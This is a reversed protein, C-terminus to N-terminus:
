DVSVLHHCDSRASRKEYEPQLLHQLCRHSAVKPPAAAARKSQTMREDETMRSFVAEDGAAVPELCPKRHWIQMSDPM